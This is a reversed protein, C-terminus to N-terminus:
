LSNNHAKASSLAGGGKGWKPHEDLDNVCADFAHVAHRTAINSMKM